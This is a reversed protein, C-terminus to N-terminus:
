RPAAEPTAREGDAIAPAFPEPPVLDSAPPPPASPAVSPQLRLGGVNITLRDVEQGLAQRVAYRVASDVQRAVEAIPVGHAVTIDLDVDIGDGMAVRIGPQGIGLLGVVRVPWPAALGTVGYSGLTATRVVDVVARRSVWARGPTPHVPM